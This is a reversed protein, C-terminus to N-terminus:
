LMSAKYKNNKIMEIVKDRMSKPELVECSDIYNGAWYCLGTMSGTVTITFTGDNNKIIRVGSGFRDIVQDLIENDCKLVATCVEGGYMFISSDSYRIPSFDKPPPVCPVDTIDIGSIKDIRFQSVADAHSDCKCLLYYHENAAVMAYPSVTYKEDRKPILKKDYDYRLYTFRVKRCLRIAEDLMDISLFVEKNDTKRGTSLSTLSAYSRRKSRPLLKQLKSVLQASYSEPISPNTFVSDILMRIESSDFERSELYYGRGNDEPTSIDYGMESLVAVCSYITRRDISLDYDSDMRKIIDSMKLINDYDSYEKLIELVCMTNAKATLKM